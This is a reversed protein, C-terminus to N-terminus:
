DEELDKLRYFMWIRPKVMIILLNLSFHKETKLVPIETSFIWASSSWISQWQAVPSELSSLFLMLVTCSDWYMQGHNYTCTVFMRCTTLDPINFMLAKTRVTSMTKPKDQFSPVLTHTQNAKQILTLCSLSLSQQRLPHFLREHVLVFYTLALGQPQRNQICRYANTFVSLCGYIKYIQWCLLIFQHFQGQTNTKKKQKTQKKLM